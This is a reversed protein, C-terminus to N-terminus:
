PQAGTKGWWLLILVTGLIYIIYLHLRGQQLLRLWPLYRNALRFVPLVARDLVTDPVVSAFLSPEAFPTVIRPTQRRPLLAWGFLDVLSRGFSSATYQM